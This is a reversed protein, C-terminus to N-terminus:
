VSRHSEDSREPKDSLLITELEILRDLFSINKLCYVEKRMVTAVVEGGINEAKSRLERIRAPVTENSTPRVILNSVTSVEQTRPPFDLFSDDLEHTFEQDFAM